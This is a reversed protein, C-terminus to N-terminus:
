AGDPEVVVALADYEVRRLYTVQNDGRDYYTTAFSDHEVPAAEAM